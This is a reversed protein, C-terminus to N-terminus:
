AAAAALKERNTPGEGLCRAAHDSLAVIEAAPVFCFASWGPEGHVCVEENARFFRLRCAGPYKDLSPAAKLQSFPALRAILHAPLDVDDSRPELEAPPNVIKAM